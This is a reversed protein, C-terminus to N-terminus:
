GKKYGIKQRPASEEKIFKKLYDFIASIQEDQNAVKQEIENIKLLVDKDLSLMKRIKVFTDIIVINIKEARESRLISSLMLIGHETFAYPPYKSHRGRKLTVSHSRLAKNEEQTLKFMYREPFRDINRKVQQNLVRTEVGYLEALDSSLMVKEGRIGYIKSAISEEPVLNDQGMKKNKLTYFYM